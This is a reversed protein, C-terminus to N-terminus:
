LSVITIVRTFAPKNQSVKCMPVKHPIYNNDDLRKIRDIEVFDNCVKKIKGYETGKKTKYTIIMGVSANNFTLREGILDTLKNLHSTTTNLETISVDKTMSKPKISITSLIDIAKDYEIEVNLRLAEDLNRKVKKMYNYRLTSNHLGGDSKTIEHYNLFVEYQESEPLYTNIEDILNFGIQGVLHKRCETYWYLVEGYKITCMQNITFKWRFDTDTKDIHESKKYIDMCNAYAPILLKYLKMWEISRKSCQGYNKWAYEYKALKRLYCLLKINAYNANVYNDLPKDINM